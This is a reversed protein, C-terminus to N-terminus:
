EVREYVETFGLSDDPVTIGTFRHLARKVDDGSLANIDEIGILDASYSDNIDTLALALFPSESVAYSVFQVHMGGQAGTGRFALVGETQWFQGHYEFITIGPLGSSTNFTGDPNLDITPPLEDAPFTWRGTLLTDIDRFSAPDEALCGPLSLALVALLFRTLPHTSM